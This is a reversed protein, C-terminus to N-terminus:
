KDEKIESEKVMCKNLELYWYLPDTKVQNINKTTTLEYKCSIFGNDDKAMFRYRKM